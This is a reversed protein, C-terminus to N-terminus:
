LSPRSRREERVIAVLADVVAPDFQTGANAHLEELAQELSLAARYPRDTTM